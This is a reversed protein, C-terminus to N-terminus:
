IVFGSLTEKDLCLQQLLTEFRTRGDMPSSSWSMVSRDCTPSTDPHKFYYVMQRKGQKTACTPGTTNRVDALVADDRQALPSIQDLAANQLAPYRIRMLNHLCVCILMNVNQPEQQRTTLLCRLKNATIEFANGM